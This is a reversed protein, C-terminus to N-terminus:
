DTADFFQRMLAKARLKAKAKIEDETGQPPVYVTMHLAENPDDFGVVVSVPVNHTSPLPRQEQVTKIEVKMTGGQAAQSCAPDPTINPVNAHVPLSRAAVM